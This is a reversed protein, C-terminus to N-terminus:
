KARRKPHLRPTLHTPTTSPLVRGMSWPIMVVSQGMSPDDMGKQNGPLTKKLIRRTWGYVKNKFV